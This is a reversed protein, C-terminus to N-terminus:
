RLAELRSQLAASLDGDDWTMGATECFGAAQGGVYQEYGSTRITAFPAWEAKGAAGAQFEGCLRYQKAGNAATLYGSRVHRVGAPQPPHAHFDAAASTLLYEVAPNPATSAAPTQPRTLRVQGFPVYAGDKHVNDLKWTWARAPADYAFVNSFSVSGDPDRFLFPISDGSRKGRGIASPILGGGGTSDLWLCQFEGTAEDVGLLVVAEYQPKGKADTERSREHLELYLGDLIWTAAVDHTTTKGALTGRLVWSGALRELFAHGAEGPVAALLNAQLLFVALVGFRRASM